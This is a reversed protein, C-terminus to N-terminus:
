TRSGQLSVLLLQRSRILPNLIQLLLDLLSAVQVHFLRLDLAVSVGLEGRLLLHSLLYAVLACVLSFIFKQAARSPGM